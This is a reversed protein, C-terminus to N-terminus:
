PALLAALHAHFAPLDPLPHAPADPRRPAAWISDPFHRDDRFRPILHWHLHPVQNGLSALNIKDPKLAHRLATETAFLVRLLHARDGEELDTMEALHARWILRCYAPYAPDDVLILRCHSDQWLIHEPAPPTCLPCAPVTLGPM